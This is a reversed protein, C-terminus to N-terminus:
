AQQSPLDYNHSLFLNTMVNGADHEYFFTQIQAKYIDFTGNEM